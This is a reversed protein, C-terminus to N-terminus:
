SLWRPGFVSLVVSVVGFCGGPVSWARAATEAGDTIVAVDLMRHTVPCWLACGESGESWFRAGRTTVVASRSPAFFHARVPSMESFHPPYACVKEDNGPRASVLPV